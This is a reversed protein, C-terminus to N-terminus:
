RGALGMVVGCGGGGSGAAGVVVAVGGSGGGWRWVGKGKGRGCRQWVKFKSQLNPRWVAQGSGSGTQTLRRHQCIRCFCVCGNSCPSVICILTITFAGCMYLASLNYLTVPFMCPSPPTTTTTPPPPPKQYGGRRLLITWLTHKEWLIKSKRWSCVM